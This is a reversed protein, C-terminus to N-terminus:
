EMVATAQDFLRVRVFEDDAAVVGMTAGIPFRGAGTKNVNHATPDYYVLEGATFTVTAAKPLSRKGGLAFVADQGEAATGLALVAFAGVRYMRGVIVGGSPAPFVIRGGAGLYTGM